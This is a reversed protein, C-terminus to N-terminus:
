YYIDMVDLLDETQIYHHYEEVADYYDLMTCIAERLREESIDEGSNEDAYCYLIATADEIKYTSINEKYIIAIDRKTYEEGSEWGEALGTDYGVEYGYNYGKDYLDEDTCSTCLLMSAVILFLLITRKM